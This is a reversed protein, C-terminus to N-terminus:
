ILLAARNSEIVPIVGSGQQSALWQRTLDVDFKWNYENFLAIATGSIKYEGCAPCAIQKYDGSSPGENSETACIFCEM